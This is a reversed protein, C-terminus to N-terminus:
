LLGKAITKKGLRILLVSWRSKLLSSGSYDVVLITLIASGKNEIKIKKEGCLFDAILCIQETGPCCEPFREKQGLKSCYKSVKYSHEPM